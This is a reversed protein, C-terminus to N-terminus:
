PCAFLCRLSRPHAKAATLSMLTRCTCYRGWWTYSCDISSMQKSPDDHEKCFPCITSSYLHAPWDSCLVTLYIPESLHGLSPPYSKASSRLPICGLPVLGRGHTSSNVHDPRSSSVRLGRSCASDTLHCLMGNFTAQSLCVPTAQRQLCYDAFADNVANLSARTRM